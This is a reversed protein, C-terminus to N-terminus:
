AALAGRRHRVILPLGGAEAGHFDLSLAFQRDAPDALVWPRHETLAIRHQGRATLRLALHRHCPAGFNLETQSPRTEDRAITFGLLALTSTDWEYGASCQEELVLTVLDDPNGVVRTHDDRETIRWADAQGHGPMLGDGVATKLKALNSKVLLDADGRTLLDHGVLGWCTAKFSAGLRLALQYVVDPNRLHGSSWQQRRIHFVFLWRPLMFEAAFADAAIEQPNRGNDPLYPARELIERDISAQHNLVIHGLEHAATFRQIHLSRKTTVMIGRLPKPLCLGLATSLPRFILPVDLDDIAAFVDIDGGAEEIRARTGLQHHLRKAAQMAELRITDIARRTSPPRKAM